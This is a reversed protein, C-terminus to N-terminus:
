KVENPMAMMHKFFQIADFMCDACFHNKNSDIFCYPKENTCIDCKSNITMTHNQGFLVKKSAPGGIAIMYSETAEAEFGLVCINNNCKSISDGIPYCNM